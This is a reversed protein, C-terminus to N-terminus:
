ARCWEPCSSRQSDRDCDESNTQWKMRAGEVASLTSPTLARLTQAHMTLKNTRIKKM